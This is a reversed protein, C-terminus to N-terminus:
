NMASYASKLWEMRIGLWNKQYLVDSNFLGWIVDDTGTGYVNWKGNNSIVSWKLNSAASDIQDYVDSLHSYFYNFRTQVQHVFFTDQMMRAIWAGQAVYLGETTTTTMAPNGQSLDFDWIPGMKLKGGPIMNMYCSAYFTADQNRTIENILYWDVFSPVDVYARYGLASDTFNDGFLATETQNIYNTIYQVNADGTTVDPNKIDFYLQSQAAQFYVDGSDIESYPDIVVLFGDDTIDVKTSSQDVSETIEYTGEYVSDIYVESFVTHPTWDLNSLYGMYFASVSRTEPHDLANALLIYDKNAALGYIATKSSFKLHYPKKPFSWTSNGHGKIKMAGSFDPYVGAGSIAVEGTVYDNESTIAANGDTTIRMVPLTVSDVTNAAVSHTTKKCSYSFFLSCGILVVGIASGSVSLLPKM